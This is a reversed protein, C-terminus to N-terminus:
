PLMLTKKDSGKGAKDIFVFCYQEFLANRGYADYGIKVGKGSMAWM